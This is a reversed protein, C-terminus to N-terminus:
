PHSERAITGEICMQLRDRIRAITKYLSGVSRRFEVAVEQMTAEDRYRAEIIMRDGQDLKDLCSQLAATRLELLESNDIFEVALAELLEESFWMRQSMSHRRYRLVEIFAVGCAWRFFDRRRDFEPWKRWLAVSTEQMLDDCDSRNPVLTLIYAQIDQQYKAFTQVFLEVNALEEAM